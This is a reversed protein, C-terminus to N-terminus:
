NSGCTIRWSDHKKRFSCLTRFSNMEEMKNMTVFIAPNVYFKKDIKFGIIFHPLLGCRLSIEKQDPYVPMACYPLGLQKISSKNDTIVYEISSFISLTNRYIINQPVWGYIIVDQAFQNATKFDTTVSVFSSVKKYRYSNITHAISLYYINVKRRDRVSLKKYLYIINKVERFANCFDQNRLEFDKMKQVRNNGGRELGETILGYLLDCILKFNESSVDDPNLFTKENWCMRGKEGTMFMCQSLLDPTNADFNYQGRLNENSEGRLIFTSYRSGNLM